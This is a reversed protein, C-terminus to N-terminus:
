GLWPPLIVGTQSTCRTSESSTDTTIPSLVHRWTRSRGSRTMPIMTTARRIFHRWVFTSTDHENMKRLRWTSSRHGHKELHRVLRGDGACPEVFNAVYGRASHPAVLHPLLPIVAEYPTQYYDRPNREFDSRKGM